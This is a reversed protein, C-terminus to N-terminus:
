RMVFQEYHFNQEPLGLEPLEDSLQQAFHVPGCFSVAVSESLPVTDAIEQSTLRHGTTSTIIHLSINTFPQALKHLIHEFYTEKDSHRCYYLHVQQNENLHNSHKTLWNLWGIFPVIGIGSGIWIQTNHKPIHFRGYSGEVTVNKLVDITEILQSTYDGLEKIAFEVVQTQEDYNLISFPHPAEGDHFDLYAFQGERYQLSKKLQISLHLVRQPMDPTTLVKYSVIQGQTKNKQGIRGTLSIISGIVGIISMLVILTDIGFASWNLDMITVSHFAGAIFIAGAINHIFKFKRYSILQILSIVAFIVFVYFCYEGVVKSLHTWNIGDIVGGARHRRQPRILLDLSILWKPSEIIIWHLALAVLAGIGMHKHLAYGKDLGGLKDEVWKWRLSLVVAVTM